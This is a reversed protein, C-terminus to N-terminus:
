IQCVIQAQTVYIFRDRDTTIRQWNHRWNLLAPKYRASLM